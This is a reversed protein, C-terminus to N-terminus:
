PFAFFFLCHGLTAVAYLPRLRSALVVRHAVQALHKQNLVDNLIGVPRLVSLELIQNQKHKLDVRVLSGCRMLTELM